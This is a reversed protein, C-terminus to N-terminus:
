LKYATRIGGWHKGRVRIPADIEQMTVIVGNGM